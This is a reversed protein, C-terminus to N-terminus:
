GRRTEGGHVRSGEHRRDVKISTVMDTLVAPPHASSGRASDSPPSAVPDSLEDSHGPGLLIASTPRSLRRDCMSASAFFYVPWALMAFQFGSLHTM